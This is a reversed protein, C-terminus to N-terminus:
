FERDVIRYPPLMFKAAKFGVMILRGQYYDDGRASFEFQYLAHFQFRGDPLRFQYRLLSTSLLQLDLQKCHQAISAHSIESQRRQQWFLFAILSVLLIMLLDTVM